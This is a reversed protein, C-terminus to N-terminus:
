RSRQKIASLVKNSEIVSSRVLQSATTKKSQSTAPNV